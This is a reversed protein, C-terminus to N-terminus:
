PAQITPAVVAHNQRLRTTKCRGATRLANRRWPWQTSATRQAHDENNKCDTKGDCRHALEDRPGHEPDCHPRRNRAPWLAWSRRQAASSRSSEQVRRDEDDAESIPAPLKFDDLAHLLGAHDETRGSSFELSTTLVGFVEDGLRAFAAVTPHDIPKGPKLQLSIVTFARTLRQNGNALAAAQELGEQQNKPDGIMRQLSSFVESNATEAARKMAIVETDYAAARRSGSPSCISTTATPGLHRALLPRFAIGNAPLGFCRRPAWHSREARRRHQAGREVTFAATLPGQSETLLVVFM